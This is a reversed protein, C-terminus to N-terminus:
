RRGWRRRALRAPSPSQLMSQRRCNPTQCRNRYYGRLLEREDKEKRGFGRSRGKLSSSSDGYQRILKSSALCPVTMSRSASTSKKTQNSGAIIPDRREADRTRMANKMDETIRDKLSTSM